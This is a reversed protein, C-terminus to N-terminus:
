VGENLVTPDANDRVEEEEEEEEDEAVDGVPEDDGVVGLGAM